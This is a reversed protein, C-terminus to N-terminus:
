THTMTHTGNTDHYTYLKHVTYILHTIRPRACAQAHLLLDHKLAGRPSNAPSHACATASSYRRAEIRCPPCVAGWVHTLPPFALVVGVVAEVEEALRGVGGHLELTM